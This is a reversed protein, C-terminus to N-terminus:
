YKIDCDTTMLRQYQEAHNIRELASVPHPEIIFLRARTITINLEPGGDYDQLRVPSRTHSTNVCARM